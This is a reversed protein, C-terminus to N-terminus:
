RAIVVKQLTQTPEDFDGNSADVVLIYVGNALQNGFQDRGNWPASNFGQPSYGIDERYIMRGALSYISVAVDASHSLMFTIDTSEVMPNPFNFLDYVRFDDAGFFTLRLSADKPNNQSDWAKISVLHEGPPIESLYTSLRGIDSHDLDYEFLETVDIANEWEEDVALTIGHGAVGALNIGQPDKLEVELAENASFHDGNLLVLNDSLFLIEPGSDDLSTSDTGIFKLTDIFISGDLGSDDWYQVNLIGGTSSYKIDKPVTFDGSFTRDDISILGRFIRKGPLVYSITSYADTGNNLAFRRTVPTPTDFVTVAAQAGASLSTDTSGSYEVNVLAQPSSPTISHIQGKRSPAALRLAPDSLLVYKENNDKGGRTISKALMIADGMPISRSGNGDPFLFEFFDSIIIENLSAFTKRTPSLVGIAGNKEMRLLEEPVCSVGIDDYKAWDCTGAVWFPIRMGTKVQGLDAATFVNEQAWVNPSGHGLYNVLLTGNYLKKILDDRAHPKKIYPSNPDQIEPYETLYLKDKYMSKPLLEALAETDLIHEREIYTRPRLPDDAVLTITNRWIGPEPDTEYAVIKDVMIKMQDLDQAPLRGIAVDPTTDYIGDALYTFRDDTAFSSVDSVNDKQYTPILMKSQGTINRYDFDTDGMLLVYRLEPIDTSFYVSHLFHKIAAPDQTGASFEKYIDEILAIKVVLQHEPSVQEERLKKIREAEELLIEPTIIIYEAHYNSIRLTPRGMDSVLDLNVELVQDPSFGIIERKGTAELTFSQNELSWEIVDTPDSIDWVRFATSTNRFDLRSISDTLTVTGFLYESSPALYRGYSMRFSDVYAIASESRGTYNLRISNSGESVERLLTESATGNVAIHKYLSSYVQSPKMSIGNIEIDVRDTTSGSNYDMVVRANVKIESNSRQDLNDDSFFLSFQDSTGTLKEGVWSEGSHLQNLLESEHYMRKEYSNLTTTATQASSPLVTIENGVLFGDDPICLWYYRQQGYLHTFNNGKFDGNLAQAFFILEDAGSFSNGSLNSYSMSILKLNDPTPEQNSLTYPLSRGEYYPAYLQWTHPNSDPLESGFSAVNIRHIGMKDVPFRFWQGTPLTASPKALLKAYSMSWNSAMNANVFSQILDTDKTAGYFKNQPFILRLTVQTLRQGEVAYPSVVVQGTKFNRFNEAANVDVWQRTQSDALKYEQKLSKHPIDSNLFRRDHISESDIIQIEPMEGSPPLLIPIRFLPEVQEDVVDYNLQANSWRPLEILQDSYEYTALKPEPINLQLTISTKSKEIIKTEMGLVITSFLLIYILKNM